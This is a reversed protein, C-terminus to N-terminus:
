GAHDAAILAHVRKLDNFFLQALMRPTSRATVFGEVREEGNPDIHLVRILCGGTMEDRDLSAGEVKSLSVAGIFEQSRDHFELTWFIKQNTLYLLGIGTPTGGARMRLYNVRQESPTCLHAVPAWTREDVKVVRKQAWRKLM